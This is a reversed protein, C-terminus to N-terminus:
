RLGGGGIVSWDQTMVRGLRDWGEQGIEDGGGKGGHLFASASNVHMDKKITVGHKLAVQEIRNCLELLEQDKPYLGRQQHLDSGNAFTIQEWLAEHSRQFPNSM